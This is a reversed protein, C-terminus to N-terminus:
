RTMSQQVKMVIMMMILKDAGDANDTDNNVHSADDTEDPGYANANHLSDTPDVNNGNSDRLRAYNEFTKEKSRCCSIATSYQM